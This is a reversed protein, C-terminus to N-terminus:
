SGAVPVLEDACEFEPHFEDILYRLKTYASISQEPTLPQESLLLAEIKEVVLKAHESKAPTSLSTALFSVRADRSQVQRHLEFIAWHTDLESVEPFKMVGLEHAIKKLAQEFRNKPM